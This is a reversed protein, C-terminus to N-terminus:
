KRSFERINMMVDEDILWSAYMEAKKRTPIEGITIWSKEWRVINRATTHRRNFSAAVSRALQRRTQGSIKRTQMSLFQRVMVHRQFFNTRPSLRYGYKKDQETVLSLLKKLNVLGKARM